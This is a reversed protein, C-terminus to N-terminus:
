RCFSKRREEREDKSKRGDEVGPCSDSFRVGRLLSSIPPFPPSLLLSLSLPLCISLSIPPSPSLQLSSLRASRYRKSVLLMLLHPDAKSGQHALFHRWFLLQIRWLVSPASAGIKSSLAKSTAAFDCQKCCRARLADRTHRQYVVAGHM